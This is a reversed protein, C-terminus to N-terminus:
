GESMLLQESGPQGGDNEEGVFAISPIPVDVVYGEVLEFGGELNGHCSFYDTRRTADM